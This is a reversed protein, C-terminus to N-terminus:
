QICTQVMQVSNLSYLPRGGIRGPGRMNVWATGSVYHCVAFRCQMQNAKAAEAFGWGACM